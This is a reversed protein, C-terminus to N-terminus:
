IIFSLIVIRNKLLIVMVGGQDQHYKSWALSELGLKVLIRHFFM